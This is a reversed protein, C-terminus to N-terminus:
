LPHIVAVIHEIGETGVVVHEGVRFRVGTKRETGEYFLAGSDDSFASALLTVDKWPSETSELMSTLEDPGRIEVGGGPDFVVDPALCDRYASWDAPEQWAHFYRMVIAEIQEPM